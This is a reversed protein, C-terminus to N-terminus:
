WAAHVTARCCWRKKAVGAGLAFMLCAGSRLLRVLVRVQVSGRERQRLGSVGMTVGQSRTSGYRVVDKARTCNQRNARKRVGKFM